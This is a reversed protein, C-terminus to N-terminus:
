AQKAREEDLSIVAGRQAETPLHVYNHATVRSGPAHGLRPQLLSDDVGRMKLWSAHAKRFRQPSLRMPEGERVVGAVKVATALAKTFNWMVKGTRRSPFVLAPPREGAQLAAKRAERHADALDRVLGPPIPIDRDSHATKPTFEDKRRIMVLADAERFDSWELNFAEGARCGTEAMFQLLLALRAPLADVIRAVEAPTPLDLRKRHEPLPEFKPVRDLLERDHAWTLCQRLLRTETNISPNARKEALRAKQFEVIDKPTIRSIDKDGFHEILTRLRFGNITLTRARKKQTAVRDLQDETWLRGLEAFTVGSIRPGFGQMAGNLRYERLLRKAEAVAKTKNDLFLRKRKGGPAIHPPLDILWKGSPEGDRVHPAVRLAGIKVAEDAAKTM